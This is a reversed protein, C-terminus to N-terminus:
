ICNLCYIILYSMENDITQTANSTVLTRCSLSMYVLGLFRNIQPINTLAHIEDILSLLICNYSSLKVETTHLNLAKLKARNFM